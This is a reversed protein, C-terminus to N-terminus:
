EHKYMLYELNERARGCLIGRYASLNADISCERDKFCEYNKKMFKEVQEESDFMDDFIWECDYQVVLQYTPNGPVKLKSLTFNLHDTNYKKIDMIIAGSM